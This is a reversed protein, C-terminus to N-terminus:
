TQEQIECFQAVPSIVEKVGTYDAVQMRVLPFIIDGFRPACSSLVSRTIQLTYLTYYKFENRFCYIRMPVNYVYIHIHIHTHTSPDILPLPSPTGTYLPHTIVCTCEGGVRGSGLDYVEYM